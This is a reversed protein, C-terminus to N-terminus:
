GFRLEFGASILHEWFAPYSKAVVGPNEINIPNIIALPAFAMAMRHDHYTKVVDSSPQFQGRVQHFDYMESYDFHLNFKKLENHLAAIRDTEKLRLSELGSFTTCINAAGLMVAFTQVLDPNDAFNYKMMEPLKVQRKKIAAGQETFTTEIGFRHMWESVICDGQSWDDRLNLFTIEAEQALFAISYWYSASSWDAGIQIEQPEMQPLNKAYCYDKGISADAGIRQLLQVTMEAYPRSRLPTTFHITLGNPLFPAILLLASIFQSSVHGAIHVENKLHHLNQIPIIEVPPYGEQETYRVDFGIDNLANVLESIPREQMRATGTIIKHENLVAYMATLFRMSTGTDAVDITLDNSNLIQLLRQTDLANSLNNIQLKGGCLRNLVLARNSESKSGPLPITQRVIRTPHFLHVFSM